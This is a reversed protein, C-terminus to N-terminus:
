LPTLHYKGDNPSPNAYHSRSPLPAHAFVPTSSYSMTSPAYSVPGAPAYTVPVGSSRPSPLFPNPAPNPPPQPAAPYMPPQQYSSRRESRHSGAEIDRRPPSSRPPSARSSSNRKLNENFEREVELDDLLDEVQNCLDSKEKKLLRNEKNSDSLLANLKATSAELQRIKENAADLAEQVARLNHRQTEIQQHNFPSENPNEGLSARDSASSSGVGSDRSSRHQHSGGKTGREYHVKKQKPSSM